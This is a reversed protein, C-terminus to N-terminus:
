LQQYEWKPNGKEGANNIFDIFHLKYYLGKSTYIIYSKRPDTTYTGNDFSYAKWDFGITNIDKSFHYGALNEFGIASFATATDMVVTTQYRNLLCGTVTYPTNDMDYYIHTYQSFVIDWDAKPPEVSVQAGNELSLFVFNYNDDKDLTITQEGSGDMASFRFIYQKDDVSELRIKRYGLSVGNHSGRNIIYVHQDRWDGVATSDLSGSPSDFRMRGATDSITVTAPDTKDTRYATMMRANNLIVHYGGPSAELGLDWIHNLNKGAVTNTKLDFYIQWSYDSGMAVSSTTMDGAEHMPVPTEGPVCSHLLLASFLIATIQSKM